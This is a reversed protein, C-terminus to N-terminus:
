HGNLINNVGDLLSTATSKIFNIPRIPAISPSPPTSEDTSSSRSMSRLALPEEDTSNLPANPEDNSCCVHNNYNNQSTRNLVCIVCDRIFPLVTAPYVAVKFSDILLSVSSSLATDSTPGVLM